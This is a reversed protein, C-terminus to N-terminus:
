SVVTRYARMPVSRCSPLTVHRIAQARTCPGSAGGAIIADRDLGCATQEQMDTTGAALVAQPALTGFDLAAPEVAKGGRLSMKSGGEGFGSSIGHVRRPCPAQEAIPGYAASVDHVPPNVM